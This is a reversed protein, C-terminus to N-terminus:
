SILEIKGVYEGILDRALGLNKIGNGINSGLSLFVLEEWKDSQAAM